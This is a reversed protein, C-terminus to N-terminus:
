PAKYYHRQQQNYHSLNHNVFENIPIEDGYSKTFHHVIEDPKAVTSPNDYYNQAFNAYRYAQKSTIYGNNGNAHKLFQAMNDNMNDPKTTYMLYFAIFEELSIEGDHNTDCVRFAKQVGEHHSLKENHNGLNLQLYLKEFKRFDLTDDQGAISNFINQLKNAENQTLGYKTFDFESSKVKHHNYM